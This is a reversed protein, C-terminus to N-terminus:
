PWSVTQHRLPLHYRTSTRPISAYITNRIGCAPNPRRPGVPTSNVSSCRSVNSANALATSSQLFQGELPSLLAQCTGHLLLLLLPNVPHTQLQANCQQVVIQDMGLVLTDHDTCQGLHAHSVILNPQTGLIVRGLM